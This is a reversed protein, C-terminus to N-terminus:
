PVTHTSWAPCDISFQRPDRTASVPHDRARLEETGTHRRSLDPPADLAAVQDAHVAADVADAVPRGADLGGVQSSDQGGSLARQQAYRAAACRSPSSFPSAGGASTMVRVWRRMSPTVEWRERMRLARSAVVNRPMGTVVTGRVSTSRAVTGTAEIGESPGAVLGPDAVAGRGARDLRHERPSGVAGAGLLEASDHVSVDVDGEALEFSMEPARVRRQGAAGRSWGGLLCGARRSGSARARVSRRVRRSGSGCSGGSM